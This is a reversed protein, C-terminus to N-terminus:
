DVLSCVQFVNLMYDRWTIFKERLYESVKNGEEDTMSIIGNDCFCM